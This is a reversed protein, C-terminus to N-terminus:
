LKNKTVQDIMDDVKIGSVNYNEPNNFQLQVTIDTISKSTEISLLEFQYTALKNDLQYPLLRSGDTYKLKPLVGDKLNTYSFDDTFRIIETYTLPDALEENTLLLEGNTEGSIKGNVHQNAWAYNNNPTDANGAIRKVLDSNLYSYVSGVSLSNAINNGTGSIGGVYNSKSTIDVNTYTNRVYAGNYGMLGGAKPSNTNITGTAYVNAVDGSGIYGILGGVANVVKAETVDFNANQVYCNDIAM